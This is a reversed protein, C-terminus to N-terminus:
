KGVEIYNEKVIYDCLRRGSVGTLMPIRGAIPLGKVCCGESAGKNYLLCGKQNMLKAVHTDRMMREVRTPASASDDLVLMIEDSQDLLFKTRDNLTAPLDIIVVDCMTRSKLLNLLAELEEITVMQMENLHNFPSFYMVQSAADIAKIGDIKIAKNGAGMLLTSFVESLSSEKNNEFYADTSAMDELNLYLVKRAQQAYKMALSMAVTTKGSGGIPAYVTCIQNATNNKNYGIGAESVEAFQKLMYSEIALISQYKETYLGIQEVLEQATHYTTLLVTLKVNQLQLTAEYMEPTILVIDCKEKQLYADLAESDNFQSISYKDEYKLALYNVFRSMYENDKDAIILDIKM